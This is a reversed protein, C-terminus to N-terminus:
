FLCVCIVADILATIEILLRIVVTLQCFARIFAEPATSKLLMQSWSSTIVILTAAATVLLLRRMSMLGRLSEMKIVDSAAGAVAATVHISLYPKCLLHVDVNPVQSAELHWEFGFLNRNSEFTVPQNSIKSDAADATTGCVV